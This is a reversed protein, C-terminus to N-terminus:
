KVLVMRGVGSYTDTRTRAVVRYLYTGSPVRSADVQVARGSGAPLRQAPTSLLLRGLLDYVDVRVEAAHPLDIRISTSPNFPNPYNGRVSFGGPVDAEDDVDTLANRTLDIQVATGATQFSGDTSIVRHFLTASNGVDIGNTTLLTGIVGFTTEFRTATGVPSEFLIGSFAADAALQWRYAVPNGNADAAAEWRVGFVTAPDGTVDIGGGAAPEVIVSAAPAVNTAALVQGRLEGPPQDVTHINVYIGGDLLKEVDDSSLAFTNDAAAFTGGRNDADLTPTLGHLISGNEGAPAGHLHSGGAIEPNFDSELGNFGGAVRLDSGDLVAIGGGTAGTAVPPAEHNGSLSFEFVRHSVPLVQGRLEGGPLADTHINVYLLGGELMARQGADLAFTNDAAEFMGGHEDVDLRPTLGFVIEGNEDIDGQHLHAGGSIDENFGSTLGSFAGSVILTDDRLEAIGGGLATSTNAPVQARGSFVVRYLAEAGDLVLQGRLEGGPLADTHINIYFRRAELDAIDGESLAFTNAAAEFTGGREDADLTPTLAFVIPGNQGAVGRHIHAGGAISENFGSALGSFTGTVTLTAGDLVATISGTGQGAKASFVNENAGATHAPVENAGSLDAVFQKPEIVTVTVTATGTGGADDSITYDFTDSGGFGENPTYRIQQDNGDSIIDATGNGPATVADITLPDNEPDSDNALVDIDIPTDLSTSAADDVAVPPPDALVEVTVMAEDEGGRGDSIRYEFTDTGVFDADPTYQMISEDFAVSGNTPATPMAVIALPDGDPDTDNKLVRVTVRHNIETSVEDDVATPPVNPRPTVTVTVDAQDTGGQGDSAEYTFTDQGSFGPDPTYTVFAGGGGLTANGNNPQAPIGSVTLPDDDPDTDNDLVTIDVPTDEQTTDADDNAVPNRNGEVTVTVTANDTNGRGDDITYDFTTQGVFNGPATYRVQTGAAVIQTSGQAPQTVNTVQLPDGDPSDDNTLVAIDITEDIGATDTDDNAVPPADVFVTVTAQDTGGLDDEIDYTFADNGSFGPDPDYNVMTGGGTITATGGPPNSVGTVTLSQGADNPDDNTLVDIDFAVGVDTEATDDQATPDTNVTVEGGGGDNAPISAGTIDETFNGSVRVTSIGAGVLDAPLTALTGSGSTATSSFFVIRITGASPNSAGFSGGSSLSGPTVSGPDIDIVAPDFTIDLSYGVIDTTGYDASIVLNRSQGPAGSADPVTVPISQAQATHPPLIWLAFLSVCLIYLRKMYTTAEFLSTM